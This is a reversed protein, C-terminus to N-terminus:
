YTWIVYEVNHEFMTKLTRFLLNDMDDVPKKKKLRDKVIGWLVELDERNFNKFMKEFTQYVQSNGDARIIKFYAKKGEKHTKYDIITPSRSSIPTAKILVQDGDDLVVEMCKNLKKTDDIVPEVNKYMQSRMQSKTPPKNRKEQARLAVFHKKRKEILEVLLREKQEESFEERERAQLEQEEAELQRAYEEDIRIQDKKKIPLEPQIMKAKGKDKSSSVTPIYSQKQEHFVIGKARPTPDDNTVTTTAALIITSLEQEQVVVKPKTSKLAALVQAMVIEDETVVTRLAASVKDAVITVVEGATTFPEATSVDEIIKKKLAPIEKSQADKAEQLDFVHEQLSTYFVMLENLTFSDEGSPLPDSSPIPVHDEDESEDQFVEAEKRQKKKPKQKKGSIDAEIRRMNAFIKKTHSSIVYMDIDQWEKLKTIMNDFIYKSFNIKQNDALCIIASAMTSNFEIWATTKASTRALGEFIEENPLCATGEADDFRLDSRIFDETIIVKKKDVLAQIHEQDNVWYYTVGVDSVQIEYNAITENWDLCGNMVLKQEVTSVEVVVLKLKLNMVLAMELGYSDKI